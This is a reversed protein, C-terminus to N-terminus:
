SAFRNRGSSGHTTGTGTRVNSANICPTSCTPVRKALTWTASRVSTQFLFGVPTHTAQAFKELQKLTPQKTEEEWEMLAPFRIFLDEPAV